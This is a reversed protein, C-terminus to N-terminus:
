ILVDEINALKPAHEIKDRLVIMGILYSLPLEDVQDRTWGYEHYVGMYVAMALEEATMNYKPIEKNRNPIRELPEKVFSLIWDFCQGYLQMLEGMRAPDLLYDPTIELRDFLQAILRAHRLLWEEMSLQESSSALEAFERWLRAKPPRAAFVRGAVKIKPADMIM